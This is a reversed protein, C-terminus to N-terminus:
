PARPSIPNAGGASLLSSLSTYIISVQQGFRVANAREFANGFAAGARDQSSMTRVLASKLLLHPTVASDILKYRHKLLALIAVNTISARELELSASTYASVFAEIFVDLNEADAELATTFAYEVADSTVSGLQSRLWEAYRNSTNHQDGHLVPFILLSSLSLLLSMAVIKKGINSRLARM